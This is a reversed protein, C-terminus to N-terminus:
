PEQKVVMISRPYDLYILTNKVEEATFDSNYYLTTIYNCFLYVKFEVYTVTAIDKLAGM